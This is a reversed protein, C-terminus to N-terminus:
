PIRSSQMNVSRLESRDYLTIVVPTSEVGPVVEQFRETFDAPMRSRAAASLQPDDGQQAVWVRRFRATAEAVEERGSQLAGANTSRFPGLRTPSAEFRHAALEEQLYFEYPVPSASVDIILADGPEQASLICETAGRWGNDYSVSTKYYNFIGFISGALMLSLAFPVLWAKRPYLNGLSTIGLAALSALPPLCIVMYRFSFIPRYFSVVLTSAIPFAFWLYLLRVKWKCEEETFTTSDSSARWYRALFGFLFYGCFMPLGAYAGLYNVFFLLSELTPKPVWDLQGASKLLVFAIMPAALLGFVAAVSFVRKVGVKRLGASNLSLWQAALVLGAFLHSYFALASFVAYLAWYRKNRPSEVALVFAYTSLVLLLVLLSYSRAEQSYRIHFSHLALLMASIMGVRSDFLHTALAYLVVITLLGFIVSLARVAAESPGFHVWGRLLFYYFAMNGEYNWLNWLFARFPLRALNVSIAEDVWYSRLGLLHIRLATGAAVIVALLAARASPGWTLPAKNGTETSKLAGREGLNNPAVSQLRL